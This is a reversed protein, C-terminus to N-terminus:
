RDTGNVPRVVGDVMRWAVSHDLTSLRRTRATTMPQGQLVRLSGNASDWGVAPRGPDFAAAVQDRPIGKAKYISAGTDADVGQVVKPGLARFRSWSREVKVQGFGSGITVRGAGIAATVAERPATVSDTDAYLVSGVAEALRLLRLRAAATIWAAWHPLLYPAVLPVDTRVWLWAFAAVADPDTADYPPPTWEPGPREAALMWEDRIPRSGFKGYLGNGMLKGVTGSAGGEARMAEIKDVYHVFPHVVRPWVIGGHVVWGIGRERAAVLEASTLITRFTGTPWALGVATRQGLFTFPQDVPVTVTVDYMGPRRQDFSAVRWPVGAPVGDERMATPYMSNVDLTVVDAHWEVSGLHVIGGYYGARALPVAGAQLPPYREGPRLGLSWARLATSATSWSPLCGDFREALMSRFRTLVALTAVTDRAAYDRHVPDDPDFRVGDALGIDLKPLDPALSAALARLSAPMLAYSDRLDTRNRGTSLRWGITTTDRTVPAATHTGAGVAERIPDILYLYDYEGGNHAWWVHDRNAHERGSHATVHRWLDRAGRGTTVDDPRCECAATWYVLDGRLGDTEVDLVAYPRRDTRRGTPGASLYRVM